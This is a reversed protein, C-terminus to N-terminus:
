ELEKVAVMLCSLTRLESRLSFTLPRINARIVVWVTTLEFYSSSIVSVQPLVSLLTFISFIIRCSFCRSHSSWVVVLSQICWVAFYSVFPSALHSVRLDVWSCTKPLNRRSFIKSRTWQGFYVLSCFNMVVLTISVLILSCIILYWILHTWKVCVKCCNINWFFTLFLLFHRCRHLRHTFCATSIWHVCRFWLLLWIM